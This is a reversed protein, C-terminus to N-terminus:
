SFMRRFLGKKEQERKETIERLGKRALATRADLKLAKSFEAEALLDQGGELLIWGKFAYASPVRDLTLARNLMQRVKERMAPSSGNRPNRYISWALHALYDGNKTAINCADQLAKEANDWEEMDLFVKGSQFQVQAQFIDDGKQGLGVKESGLLEDYREKKIVDSLTNYATTVTALIDEVMGAEEGALQMMTEPGFERTLKFYSAKLQDFSFKGQEMAFIQYYNKGQMGEFVQRVRLSLDATEPLVAPPPQPPLLPEDHRSEEAVLDSFSELPGESGLGDEDDLVNFLTRLPMGAPLEASLPADAFDLMGFIKLLRLLPTLGGAGELCEALTSRGNLQGVFRREEENLDLFNVHRYYAAAPAVFKGSVEAPFPNPTHPSSSRQYGRHFLSPVNLTLLQLGASAPFSRWAVTMPPRTFAEILEGALYTLKEQLLEPYHLCGLQVLVESRCHGLGQYYDYESTSIRGQQLLYDAFDRHVFGPRLSVPMGAVFSLIPGREGDFHCTGSFGTSFARYLHQDFHEGDSAVATEAKTAALMDKVAALLADAGFPKELYHRVGLSQAARAYREGRYVGTAIIVPLERGVSTKRLKKLLDVGHLRPLRLDLLLLAPASRNIRQLTEIGDAARETAYGAHRLLAELFAAVRDNDEAILIKQTMAEGAVVIDREALTM